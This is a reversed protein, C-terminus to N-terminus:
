HQRRTEWCDRVQQSRQIVCPIHSSMIAKASLFDEPIEQGPAYSVAPLGYEKSKELTQAQLQTTSCLYLVSGKRENLISQAILLGVLTKGGGTNLKIVLDREDRREFWEKLAEAQSSWLDDFGPPKPLRLFIDTPEIPTPRVRQKRLKNFDVM